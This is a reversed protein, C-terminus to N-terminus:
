DLYYEGDLYKKFIYFLVNPNPSYFRIKKERRTMKNKRM